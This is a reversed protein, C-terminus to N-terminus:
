SIDNRIIREDIRRVGSYTYAKFYKLVFGAANPNFSEFDVGIRQFGNHAAHKIVENLLYQMIGQGRYEPICYAGCINIMDLASCAFNEGDNTLKL